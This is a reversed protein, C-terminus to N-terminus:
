FYDNTHSRFGYNNNNMDNSGNNNNYGHQSPFNNLGWSSPNLPDSLSRMLMPSATSQIKQLLNPNNHLLRRILLNVLDLANNMCANSPQGSTGRQFVLFSTTKGQLIDQDLWIKCGSRTQIENLTSGDPGLISNVIEIPLHLAYETWESSNGAWRYM